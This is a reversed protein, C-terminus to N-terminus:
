DHLPEHRESGETCMIDCFEVHLCCPYRFKYRIDKPHATECDNTTILVAFAPWLLPELVSGLFMRFGDLTECRRFVCGFYTWPDEELAWSLEQTWKQSNSGCRSSQICNNRHYWWTTTWCAPVCVLLIIQGAGRSRQSISISITCYHSSNCNLGIQFLITLHHQSKTWIM